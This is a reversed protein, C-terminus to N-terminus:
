RRSVCLLQLLAPGARARPVPMAVARSLGRPALSVAPCWRGLAIVGLAVAVVAAGVATFVGLCLEVAPSMGMGHDGHEMLPGAHHVAIAAACVLM